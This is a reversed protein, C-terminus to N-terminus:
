KVRSVNQEPDPIEPTTSLGSCDARASRRCRGNRPRCATCRLIRSVRTRAFPRVVAATARLVGRAPTRHPEHILFREPRQPLRQCALVHHLLKSARLLVRQDDARSSAVMSGAKWFRIHLSNRAANTSVRQAPDKVRWVPTVRSDDPARRRWRPWIISDM